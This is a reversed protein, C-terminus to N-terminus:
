IGELEQQAELVQARVRSPELHAYHDVVMRMSAKAWGGAEMVEALNSGNRLLRAAFAHRGLKHTSYYAIGLRAAQRELAQNVSHNGKYGFVRKGAPEDPERLKMIEDLMFQSVVLTRPKGNKTRRLVIERRGVNIDDWTVRCCEAVRAATGSMLRVIAKLKANTCGALFTKMWEPPAHIVMEKQWVPRTLNPVECLGAKKGMRLIAILPTYVQRDISQPRCDPYFKRAFEIVREETIDACKFARFHILLKQVQDTKQDPKKAVYLNWVRSFEADKQTGNIDAMLLENELKVRLAEAAERRDTRTSQRIPVGRVSGVIQYIKSGARQELRLGGRRQRKRKSSM